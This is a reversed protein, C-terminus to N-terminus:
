RGILRNCYQCSHALVPLFPTLGGVFQLWAADNLLQTLDAARDPRFSEVVLRDVSGGPLVPLVLRRLTSGTDAGKQKHLVRRRSYRTNYERGALTNLDLSDGYLASWARHSGLFSM